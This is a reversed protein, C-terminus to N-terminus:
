IGSYFMHMFDYLYEEFNEDKGGFDTFRQIYELMDKPIPAYFRLNESTRPHTLYLTHSHLLIRNDYEGKYGYFYDGIIHRNIKALHVRIQHTRGTFLKACILENNDKSSIKYFASKAEKGSKANIYKLRNKPHRMINSQITINEKLPNDIMCLYFRGMTRQQLQEKLAMHSENNKAIVMAGSTTKDLRHIIGHRYSDGISSTQINNQILWNVVSNQMDHEHAKHVILNIPKNIVLIDSDEYLIEIELKTEENKQPIQIEAIRVIDNTKLEYSAKQIITNNISIQSNKILKSANNRTINLTEKLFIDLRDQINHENVLIEQM